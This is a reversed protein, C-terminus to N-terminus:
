AADKPEPWPEVQPAAGVMFSRGSSALWGKAMSAITPDVVGEKGTEPDVLNLGNRRAFKLVSVPQIPAGVAMSLRYAAQVYPWIRAPKSPKAPM